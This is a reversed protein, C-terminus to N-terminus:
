GDPTDLLHQLRSSLEPPFKQPWTQDILGVSAVDRVLMSDENRRRTLLLSVLPKLQLVRFNAPDDFTEIEPAPLLHDAKTKEGAFLLHIAESPKGALGDHFMVVGFSDTPIFGARSLAESVQQYDERRVLLDVDRTNRVAGEDVTAVWSAVANGGVVASLIAAQNLPSTARLLRERVKVVAREMRDLIEEGMAVTGALWAPSDSHESPLNM